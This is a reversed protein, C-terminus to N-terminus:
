VKLPGFGVFYLLTIFNFLTIIVILLVVGRAIGLPKQM